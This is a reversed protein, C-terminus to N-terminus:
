RDNYAILIFNIVLRPRRFMFISYAPINARTHTRTEDGM